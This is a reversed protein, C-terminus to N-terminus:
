SRKAKSFHTRAEAVTAVCIQERGKETAYTEINRKAKGRVFFPVKKLELAADALWVFQAPVEPDVKVGNKNGDPVTSSIAASAFPLGLYKGIHRDMPTGLIFSCRFATAALTLLVIKKFM